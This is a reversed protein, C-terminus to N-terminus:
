ADGDFESLAAALLDRSVPGREVGVYRVASCDGDSLRALIHRALTGDGAGAEVVAFPDPRGLRIWADEVLAGLLAGFLPSVHPSTVFHGAGGVAPGAYFGEDPDYLAVEMFAAFTMPGDDRIRARLREAITRGVPGDEDMCGRRSPRALHGCTRVWPLARD